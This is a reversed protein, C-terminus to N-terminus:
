LKLSFGKEPMEAALSLLCKVILSNKDKKKNQLYIKYTVREVLKLSRLRMQWHSKSSFSLFAIFFNRIDCM